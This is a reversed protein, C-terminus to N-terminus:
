VAVEEGALTLREDEERPMDPLTDPPPRFESEGFDFGRLANSRSLWANIDQEVDNNFIGTNNM